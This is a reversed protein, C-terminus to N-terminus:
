AILRGAGSRGAFRTDRRAPRARSFHFGQAHSCGLDQVAALQEATEVGEAVSTSASPRGGDPHRRARDRRRGLRRDLNEVFARDLKIASLPLRRLYGLSSFGTGFDDLVLRVGLSQLASCAARGPGRGGRVPHDRDAGAAAHRARHRQARCRSGISACCSRTPWSSAGLPQGLRRGAGRGPRLSSGARRGRPLGARAGLPRDPAILRSEEAVPIFAAPPSCAASPTAGACCRRSSRGGLPRQLSVIPQYHLELEGRQLAGHAPRERDAHPRDRARADGRRLDRLRRPGQEKARYLAADADRILAEPTEGDGGISIGISASVFHERHRLVFPRTCRRARDARRGPDRRARQRRGRGPGRVRRRRLPRGHRQPAAGARLRPAVASLLEDGAAHGLSDNVLKFQDLDLFLM